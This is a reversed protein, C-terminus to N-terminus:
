LRQSLPWMRKKIVHALTCSVSIAITDQESDQQNSPGAVPQSHPCDRACDVFPAQGWPRRNSVNKIYTLEIVMNAVIGFKHPVM